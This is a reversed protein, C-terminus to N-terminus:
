ETEFIDNAVFSVIEGLKLDRSFCYAELFFSEFSETMALLILLVYNQGGCSTFIQPVGEM